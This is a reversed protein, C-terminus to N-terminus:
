KPQLLPKGDRIWAKYVANWTDAMFPRRKDGTRRAYSGCYWLFRIIHDLGTQWEGYILESWVPCAEYLPSRRAAAILAETDLPV